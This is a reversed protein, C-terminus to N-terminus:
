PDTPRPAAGALRARAGRSMVGVGAARHRRMCASVRLRVATRAAPVTYSEEVLGLQM